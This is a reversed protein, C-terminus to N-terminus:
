QYSRTISFIYAYGIEFLLLTSRVLGVLFIGQHHRTSKYLIVGNSERIARIGYMAQLICRLVTQRLEKIVLSSRNGRYCPCRFTICLSKHIIVVIFSPQSMKELESTFDKFAQIRVACAISSIFFAIKAKSLHYCIHIIFMRVSCFVLLRVNFIIFIAISYFGIHYIATIANNRWASILQGYRYFRAQTKPLAVQM